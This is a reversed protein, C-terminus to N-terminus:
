KRVGYMVYFTSTVMEYSNDPGMLTLAYAQLYDVDIKIGAADKLDTASLISRDFTMGEVRGRFHGIVYWRRGGKKRHYQLWSEADSLEMAPYTRKYYTVGREGKIKTTKPSKKAKKAERKKKQAPTPKPLTSKRGRAPRQQSLKPNAAKNAAVRKEQYGRTQHLINDVQRRSVPKGDPNYTDIYNRSTGGLPIFRGNSREYISPQKAM